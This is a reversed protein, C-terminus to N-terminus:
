ISFAISCATPYSRMEFIVCACPTHVCLCVGGGCVCLDLSLNTSITADTIDLRCLSPSIKVDSLDM